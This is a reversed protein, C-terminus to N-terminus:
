RKRKNSEKRHESIRTTSMTERVTHFQEGAKTDTKRGRRTRMSKFDEGFMKEFEKSDINLM